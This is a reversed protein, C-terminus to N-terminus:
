EVTFEESEYVVTQSDLVVEATTCDEPNDPPCVREDKHLEARLSGRLVWLGPTMGDPLPTPFDQDFCTSPPFPFAGTPQRLTEGTDLNVFINTVDAAVSEDSVNCLVTRFTVRGPEVGVVSLPSEISLPAFQPRDPEPRFLAALSLLVALICGALTGFAIWRPFGTM